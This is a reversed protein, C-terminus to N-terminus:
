YSFSVGATACRLCALPYGSARWRGRAVEVGTRCFCCVPAFLVFGGVFVYVWLVMRYSSRVLGAPTVTEDALIAHMVKSADGNDVSIEFGDEGTYGCRTVGCDVGAVKGRGSTM